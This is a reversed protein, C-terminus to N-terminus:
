RQTRQWSWVAHDVQTATVGLNDAAAHLLTEAEAASAPRGLSDDVFRRVMRDAKVGPTGLLMLVYSWTAEALGPIACWAFRAAPTGVDAAHRVGVELLNRTVTVVGAAKTTGAHLV